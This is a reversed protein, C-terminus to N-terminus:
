APIKVNKIIEAAEVPLRKGVGTKLETVNFPWRPARTNISDLRWRKGGWSFEVGRHEPKLGYFFAARDFAKKVGLDEGTATDAKNVAVKIEFGTHTITGRNPFSAKVGWKAEVAKLAELIDAKVSQADKQSFAWQSM